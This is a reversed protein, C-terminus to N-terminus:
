SAAKGKVFGYILLLILAGVISGIFGAGQGAQYWGLAQGIYGALFSGAIGLLTTVILGMNEKGPHLFKAIVGVVFGVIITWLIGM